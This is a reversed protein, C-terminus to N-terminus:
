SYPAVKTAISSLQFRGSRGKTMQESHSLICMALSICYFITNEKGLVRMM